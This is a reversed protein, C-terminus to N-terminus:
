VRGRWYGPRRRQAALALISLTDPGVHYILSYPFRGLPWQRLRRSVPTGLEPHECLRTVALEFSAVFRGAVADSAQERYYDRTQEIEIKAAPDLIVRM